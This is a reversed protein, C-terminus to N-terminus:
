APSLSGCGPPSPGQLFLPVLSVDQALLPAWPQLCHSLHPVELSQVQGLAPTPCPFPLQSQTHLAPTQSLSVPGHTCPSSGARSRPQPGLFSVWPPSRWCGCKHGTRVEPIAIEKQVGTPGLGGGVAAAPSLTGAVELGTGWDWGPGRCAGGGPTLGAWAGAPHSRGGAFWLCTGHSVSPLQRLHAGHALSPPWAQSWPFAVLGETEHPHM